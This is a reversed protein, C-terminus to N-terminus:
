PDIPFAMFRIISWTGDAQKRFIDMGKEQSYSQDAGRGITLNWTLRVVALDGSLIIEHIDPSYYLDLKPNALANTLRKCVADYGADPAGRVSSVLDPAYLDCITAADRANFADAWAHLRQAIAAKDVNGQDALVPVVGAVAMVFLCPLLCYRWLLKTACLSM